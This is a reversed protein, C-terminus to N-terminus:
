STTCCTTSCARMPIRRAGTSSSFGPATPASIGRRSTARRHYTSGTWYLLAKECDYYAEQLLPADASLSRQISRQIWQCKGSHEFDAARFRAKGLTSLFRAHESTFARTESTGPPISIVIYPAGAADTGQDLLRPVHPELTRVDALERLWTAERAPPARRRRRPRNEGPATRAVDLLAGAPDRTRRSSRPTRAQGDRSRDAREFNASLGLVVAAESKDVFGDRNRDAREFDSAAVSAGSAASQTKAEPEKKAPVQTQAIVIPLAAMLAVFCAGLFSSSAASKDSDDTCAHLECKDPQM